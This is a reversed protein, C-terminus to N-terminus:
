KAGTPQTRAAVVQGIYLGHDADYEIHRVLTCDMVLDSRRLMPSGTEMIEVALSEFPNGGEDPPVYDRFKRLLFVDTADIRSIAFAHSDRILPEVGHGRPAAACILIPSEACPQVWRVLFGSRQADHAASMVFLGGGLQAVAEIIQQRATPSTM